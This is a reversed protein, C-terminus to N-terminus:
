HGHRYALYWAVAAPIGFIPIFAGIENVIPINAQTVGVFGNLVSAAFWVLIFRRAGGQRARGILTAGFYFVVFAVLGAAVVMVIHM